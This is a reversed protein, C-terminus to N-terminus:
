SATAPRSCGTRASAASGRRVPSRSKPSRVEWGDACAIALSGEDSLVVAGYGEDLALDSPDFGEPLPTVTAEEGDFAILASDSLIIM